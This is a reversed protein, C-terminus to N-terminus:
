SKDRQLQTYKTTDKHRKHFDNFIEKIEKSIDWQQTCVREPKSEWAPGTRISINERAMSYNQLHKYNKEDHKGKKIERVFGVM